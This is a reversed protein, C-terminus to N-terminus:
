EQDWYDMDLKPIKRIEHTAGIGSEIMLEAFQEGSLLVLTGSYQSAAKQADQTFTSTTILVGKTARKLQLGGIFTQIEPSGVSSKWRKAQIYVKELGLRDLSIIGDIGWDGPGGTHQIQKHSAGYGLAHLVQLVLKEFIIPEVQRLKELLQEKIREKIEYLGSEIREEATQSEIPHDLLRLRKKSFSGNPSSIDFTTIRALRKVEETPLGNPYKSIMKLGNTTIRWIGRQPTSSLKARKLRDHAWSIRNKYIPQTQSPLLQNREAESLPICDALAKYVFSIPIGQPISSLLQLLPSIWQDYTPISM